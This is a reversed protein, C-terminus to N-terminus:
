ENVGQSCNVDGDEGGAPGAVLFKERVRSGQKRWEVPVGGVKCHVDGIEAEESKILLHPPHSFRRWPCGPEHEDIDIRLIYPRVEVAQPIFSHFDIRVHKLMNNSRARIQPHSDGEM